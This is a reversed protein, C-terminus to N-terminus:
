QGCIALSETQLASCKELTESDSSCLDGHLVICGMVLETIELCPDGQEPSNPAFPRCSLECDEVVTGWCDDNLIECYGECVNVTSGPFTPAWSRGLGPNLCRGLSTSETVCAAAGAASCQNAGAACSAWTDFQTTCGLDSAQLSLDSCYRHCLEEDGHAECSAGQICAGACDDVPSGGCAIATLLAGFGLLALMWDRKTNVEIELKKATM